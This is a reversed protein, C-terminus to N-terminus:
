FYFRQLSEERVSQGGRRCGRGDWREGCGRSGRRQTLDARQCDEAEPLGDRVVHEAHPRHDFRHVVLGAKDSRRGGRRQAKGPAPEGCGAALRPLRRHALFTHVHLINSFHTEKDLVVM